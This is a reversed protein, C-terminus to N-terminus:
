EFWSSLSIFIGSSDKGSIVGVEADTYKYHVVVELLRLYVQASVFLYM